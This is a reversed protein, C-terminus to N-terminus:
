CLTNPKFSTTFHAKRNHTFLVSSDVVIERELHNTLKFSNGPKPWRTEFTYRALKM